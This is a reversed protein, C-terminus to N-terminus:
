QKKMTFVYNDLSFEATAPDLFHFDLENACGTTLTKWSSGRFGLRAAERAPDVSKDRDHMEGFQGQFLWDAPFDEVRYKPGKCAFIRPGTIEGPGIVVVKGVLSKMEALDEQHRAAAWPAAVASVIKWTGLYFAGAAHAVLLWAGTFLIAAEKRM